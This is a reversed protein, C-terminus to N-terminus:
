LEKIFRNIKTEVYSKNKDRLNKLFKAEITYAIGYHKHILFKAYEAQSKNQFTLKKSVESEDHYQLHTQQDVVIFLPAYNSIKHMEIFSDVMASYDAKLKDSLNKLFKDEVTYSGMTAQHLLKKAYHGVSKNLVKINYKTDTDQDLIDLFTEKEITIVYDM